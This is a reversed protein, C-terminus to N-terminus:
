GIVTRSPDDCFIRAESSPAARHKEKEDEMVPYASHASEAMGERSVLASITPRRSRKGSSIASSGFAPLMPKANGKLCRAELAQLVNLSENPPLFASCSVLVPGSYFTLARDRPQAPAEPGSRSSSISRPFCLATQTSPYSPRTLGYDYFLNAFGTVTPAASFPYEPPHRLSSLIKSLPLRYLSRCLATSTGDRRSVDASSTNRLHRVYCCFM